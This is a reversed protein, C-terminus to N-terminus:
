LDGEGILAVTELFLAEKWQYINRKGKSTTGALSEWRLFFLFVRFGASTVADKTQLQPTENTFFFFFSVRQRRALLM